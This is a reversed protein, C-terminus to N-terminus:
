SLTAAISLLSQGAQGAPLGSRRWSDLILVRQEPSFTAAADTTLKLVPHNKSLWRVFQFTREAISDQKPINVVPSHGEGTAAELRIKGFSTGDDRM